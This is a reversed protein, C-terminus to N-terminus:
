EEGSGAARERISRAVAEGVARLNLLEGREALAVSYKRKRNRRAM